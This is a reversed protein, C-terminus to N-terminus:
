IVSMKHAGLKELSLLLNTFKKTRNLVTKLISSKMLPLGSQPLPTICPFKGSITSIILKQSMGEVIAPREAEEIHSSQRCPFHHTPGHM